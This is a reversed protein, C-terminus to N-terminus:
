FPNMRIEATDYVEDNLLLQCVRLRKTANSYYYYVAKELLIDKLLCSNERYTYMYLSSSNWNYLDTKYLTKRGLITGQLFIKQLTIKKIPIVHKQIPLPAINKLPYSIYYAYLTNTPTKDDEAVFAKEIETQLEKLMLIQALNKEIQGELYEKLLQRITSQSLDAQANKRFCIAKTGQSVIPIWDSIYPTREGTEDYILYCNTM